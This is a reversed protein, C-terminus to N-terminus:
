PASGPILGLPGPQSFTLEIGDTAHIVNMPRYPPQQANILTLLAIVQPWAGTASQGDVTTILANTNPIDAGAGPGAGSFSAVALTHTSSLLTLLSCLRGDVLGGLLDADAAPTLTLHKAHATAAGVTRRAARDATLRHSYDDPGALAVATVDISDTGGGFTALPEPSSITALSAGFVRRVIPTSILVDAREIQTIDSGIAVLSSAPTGAQRLLACLNVDCAIMKDAGVNSAVWQASSIEDPTPTPSSSPRATPLTATSTNTGTSGHVAAYTTAAVALAVM